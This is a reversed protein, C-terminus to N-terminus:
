RRYVFVKSHYIDNIELTSVADWGHFSFTNSVIWTNGSLEQELKPRLRRMAGTHLYCVILAASQLPESQVNNCRFELNSLRITKSRLWSMAFPIPSNEVGIIRCSPYRRALAIALGGWGSGLEYVDGNVEPPLAAFIARRQKATTPSPGIGNKAAWLVILLVAALPVFLVLLLGADSM